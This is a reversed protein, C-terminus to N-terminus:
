HKYRVTPLHDGAYGIVFTKNEVDEIFHIRHSASFDLHKEFIARGGEPLTFERAKKYAKVKMTQESEMRWAFQYSPRMLNQAKWVLATKNIKSLKEMLNEIQRATLLEIQSDFEMSFKLAPFLREKNEVFDARGSVSAHLQDALVRKVETAHDSKSIHCVSSESILKGERCISGKLISDGWLPNTPISGVVNGTYLAFGFAFCAPGDIDGIKYEHLLLQAEDEDSLFCDKEVPVKSGLSFLFNRVDRDMTGDFLWDYVSLVGTSFAIESDILPIQSRVISSVVGEDIAAGIESLFSLLAKKADEIKGLTSYHLSVENFIIDSM